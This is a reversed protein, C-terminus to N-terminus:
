ATGPFSRCDQHFQGRSGAIGLRAFTEAPSPRCAGQAPDMKQRRQINRLAALSLQEGLYSLPAVDGFWASCIYRHIALGTKTIVPPLFPSAVIRPACGPRGARPLDNARIGAVM